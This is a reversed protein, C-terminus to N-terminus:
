YQNSLNSIRNMLREVTKKVLGYLQLKEEDFRRKLKRWLKKKMKENLMRDKKQGSKKIKMPKWNM